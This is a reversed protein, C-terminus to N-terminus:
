QNTYEYEYKSKIIVKRQIFSFFRQLKNKHKPEEQIKTTDNRTTPILKQAPDYELNSITENSETTIISWENATYFWDQMASRNYVLQNYIHWDLREITQNDRKIGYKRWVRKHKQEVWSIIKRETSVFGQTNELLVTLIVSALFRAHNQRAQKLVDRTIRYGSVMDRPQSFLLESFSRRYYSHENEEEFDIIATIQKLKYTMEAKSTTM